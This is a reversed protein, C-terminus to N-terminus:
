RPSFQGHIPRSFSWGSIGDRFSGTPRASYRSSSPAVLSSYPARELGHQPVRVSGRAAILSQGFRNPHVVDSTELGGTRISVTTCFSRSDIQTSAGTLCSGTSDRNRNAPREGLSPCAHRRAERPKVTRSIAPSICTLTPVTLVRSARARWFSPQRFTRSNDAASNRFAIRWAPSREFTEHDCSSLFDVRPLRM